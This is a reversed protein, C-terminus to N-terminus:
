DSESPEDLATALQAWGQPKACGGCKFIMHTAGNREHTPVVTPLIAWEASRYDRGCQTRDFKVREWSERRAILHLYNTSTNLAFRGSPASCVAPEHHKDADLDAATLVDDDLSPGIANSWTTDTSPPAGFSASAASPAGATGRIFSDTILRLPADAVYRM